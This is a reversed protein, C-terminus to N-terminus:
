AVRKNFNGRHLIRRLHENGPTIGEARDRWRYLLPQAIHTGVFHQGLSHFTRELSRALFMM